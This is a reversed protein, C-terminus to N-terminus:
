EEGPLLITRGGREEDKCRAKAVRMVRDDDEALMVVGLMDVPLKEALYLRHGVKVIEKRVADENM